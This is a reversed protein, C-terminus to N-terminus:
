CTGRVTCLDLSEPLYQLGVCVDRLGSKEAPTLKFQTKFMWIKLSYIVKSM